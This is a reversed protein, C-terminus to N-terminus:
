PKARGPIFSSAVIRLQSITEALEAAWARLMESRGSEAPSSILWKTAATNRDALLRLDVSDPHANAPSVSSEFSIGAENLFQQQENLDNLLREANRSLLEDRARIAAPGLDENASFRLAIQEISRSSRNIALACNFLGASIRSLDDRSRGDNVFYEELPSVQALASQQHTPPVPSSASSASKLDDFSKITVALFPLSQLSQSLERKRQESEVVGNVHVQKDDRTIEIQEGIDASMRNLTLRAELEADNLEAASPLLAHGPIGPIVVSTKPEKEFFFQKANDGSLIDVSAESIEITGFARYEVTRKIPHFNAEKVTLSEQIINTSPLRTSM